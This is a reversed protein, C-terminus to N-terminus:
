SLSGTIARGALGFSDRPTVTFSIPRGPPLEKASFLCEGPIDAFEEPYAFGAAILKRVVPKGGDAAAEVVYDFVRGGNVTKARPFTVYFCAEGRHAASELEDGNPCFKADIKAGNAFQPVAGRAKYRAARNVFDFPGDKQAPIPVAWAPAIPLGFEVSQRHVVLHDDFVEVL